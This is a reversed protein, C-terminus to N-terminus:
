ALEGSGPENNYSIRPSTAGLPYEQATAPLHELWRMVVDDM